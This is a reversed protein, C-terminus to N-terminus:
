TPSSTATRSCSAKRDVPPVRPTASRPWRIRPWTAFSRHAGRLLTVSKENERREYDDDVVVPQGHLLGLLEGAQRYTSAADAHESGLVLVGPLYRTVLLKAEANDVCWAVNDPNDEVYLPVVVVGLGLAALDLGVWNIGNRLCVALRDGGTFGLNRLAAQWRGILSALESVTVDRWTDGDGYRYLVKEPSSLHQRFYEGINAM